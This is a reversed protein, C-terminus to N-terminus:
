MVWIHNLKGHAMLCFEYVGSRLKQKHFLILIWDGLIAEPGLKVFHLHSYEKRGSFKDM